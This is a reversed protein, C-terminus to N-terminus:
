WDYFKKACDLIELHRAMKRVHGVDIQRKKPLTPYTKQNFRICWSHTTEQKTHGPACAVLM